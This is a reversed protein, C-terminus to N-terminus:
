LYASNNRTMRRVRTLADKKFYKGVGLAPQIDGRVSFNREFFNQRAQPGSPAVCKMYIAGQSKLSICHMLRGRRVLAHRVRALRM